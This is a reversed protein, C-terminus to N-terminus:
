IIHQGSAKTVAEFRSHADLKQYIHKIHSRATSEAIALHDAIEPVSLKTALMRLVELERETLADPDGAAKIGTRRGGYGVSLAELVEGLFESGEGDEKLASLLEFVKKGEDTFVRKFRGDEALVVAEMALSAAQEDQGLERHAIAALLRIEIRKSHLLNKYEPSRLIQLITSADEFRSQELLYRAFLALNYARLMNAGMGEKATPADNGLYQELGHARVLRETPNPDGARLKLLAYQADLYQDDLPNLKTQTAISRAEEMIKEANEPNGATLEIFALTDFGEISTTRRWNRSAELGGEIYERAPSLENWEWHIKGLGIKADSAAPVAYGSEDKAIGLAQEFLERAEFLAGQQVKGLAVRSLAMVATFLNGDALGMESVQLLLEMGKEVEGSFYLAASLNWAAITRFFLDQAPLEDLAKQAQRISEDLKAEYILLMAKLAAARSANEADLKTLGELIARAEDKHDVSITMTWAAYLALQPRQTIQERPLKHIWRRLTIVESRRILDKAFSELIDAAQEDHGEELAYDIAEHPHGNKDCWASARRYLTSVEEPSRQKRLRKQLLDAFLHHYRFWDGSEGLPFLFINSSRLAELMDTSNEHKTVAECLSARFRKLFSTSLLFDQIENTQLRFVEEMLFDAVFEQSGSFAEVFGAADESSQLAISALHLGAVWGETKETLKRVAESSIKLGRTEVLYRESQDADFRLDATRLEAVEGSARLKAISLHPDARTAIVLHLNSPQHDILFQMFRQIDPSDILHYDDLVLVIREKLEGLHNIISTAAAEIEPAEPSLLAKIQRADVKAGASNLAACFYDLFRSLDNDSSELQLWALPTRLEDTWSCLLTSKGFGAPASVITIKGELAKDLAEILNTRSIINNHLPPALLKTALLPDADERRDQAKGRLGQSM